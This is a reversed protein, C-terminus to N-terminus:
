GFPCLSELGCRKRKKKRKVVEQKGAAQGSFLPSLLPLRHASLPSHSSPHQPQPLLIAPATPPPTSPSHSSPAPAAPPPISPSRSSPHQPQPLLPAWPPAQPLCFSLTCVQTLSPHLCHSLSLSLCSCPFHQEQGPPQPASCLGGRRLGRGAQFAEQLGLPPPPLRPFHLANRLQISVIKPGATSLRNTGQPDSTQTTTIRAGSPALIPLLCGSRTEAGDWAPDKRGGAGPGERLDESTVRPSGQAKASRLGAQPRPGCM